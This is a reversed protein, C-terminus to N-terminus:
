STTKYRNEFDGIMAFDVSIKIEKKRKKMVFFSLFFDLFFSHEAMKGPWRVFIGITQFISIPV